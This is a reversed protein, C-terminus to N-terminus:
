PRVTLLATSFDAERGVGKGLGLRATATTKQSRRRAKIGNEESMRLM